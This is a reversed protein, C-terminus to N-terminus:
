HDASQHPDQCGKALRFKRQRRKRRRADECDFSSWWRRRRWRRRCPVLKHRSDIGDVLLRNISLPWTRRALRTTRTTLRPAEARACIGPPFGETENPSRARATSVADTLGFLDPSVRDDRSVHM